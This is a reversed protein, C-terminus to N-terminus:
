REQSVGIVAESGNDAGPESLRRRRATLDAPDLGVARVVPEWDHGPATYVEERVVLGNRLQWATRAVQEVEVGSAHGRLSHHLADRVRERGSRGAM